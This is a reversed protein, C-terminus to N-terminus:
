KGDKWKSDWGSDSRYFCFVFGFHSKRGGNWGLLLEWIRISRQNKARKSGFKIVWKRKRRWRKKKPWWHRREKSSESGIGIGTGIRIGIGIRIGMSWRCGGSWRCRFCLAMFMRMSISGQIVRFLMPRLRIPRIITPNRWIPRITKRRPGARLYNPAKLHHIPISTSEDIFIFQLLGKRRAVLPKTKPGNTQENEQESIRNIGGSHTLKKNKREKLRRPKINFIPVIM